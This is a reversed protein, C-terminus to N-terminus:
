PVDLLKILKDVTLLFPCKTEQLSIVESENVKWILYKKITWKLTNKM